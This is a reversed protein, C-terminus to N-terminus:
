PRAFNSGRPRREDAPTRHSASPPAAPRASSAEAAAHQIAWASAGASLRSVLQHTESIVIANRASAADRRELRAADFLQERLEVAPSQVGSTVQLTRVLELVEPIRERERVADALDGLGLAMMRIQVDRPSAARDFDPRVLDASQRLAVEIERRLDVSIRDALARVPSRRRHRVDARLRRLQGLLEAHVDVRQTLPMRRDVLHPHEGLLRAVVGPLAAALPLQERERVRARQGSELAVAGNMSAVHIQHDDGVAIAEFARPAPPPRAPKGVDPPAELIQMGGGVEDAARRSFARNTHSSGRRGAAKCRESRNRSFRGPQVADEPATARSRKLAIGRPWDEYVSRVIRMSTTSSSSSERSPKRTNSSADPCSTSVADSPMSPRSFSM